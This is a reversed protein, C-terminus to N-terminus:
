FYFFKENTFDNPTFPYKSLILFETKIPLEDLPIM